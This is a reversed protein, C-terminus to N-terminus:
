TRSKVAESLDKMKTGFDQWDRSVDSRVVRRAAELVKENKQAKAESKEVMAKFGEIEKLAKQADKESKQGAKEVDKSLNIIKRDNDKLKAAQDSNERQLNSAKGQAATLKEQLKELQDNQKTQLKKITEEHKKHLKQATDAHAKQMNSVRKEFDETTKPTKARKLVAIEKELSTVSEAITANKTREENLKRTLKSRLATQEREHTNRLQIIFQLETVEDTKANLETTRSELKRQEIDLQIETQECQLRASEERMYSTKWLAHLEEIQADKASLDVAQAAVKAKETEFQSNLGEVLTKFSTALDLAQTMSPGNPAHNASIEPEYAHSDIQPYDPEELAQTKQKKFPPKVAQALELMRARVDKFDSQVLAEAAASIKDHNKGNVQARLSDAEETKQDLAQELAAVRGQPQFNDSLRTGTDIAANAHQMNAMIGQKTRQRKAQNPLQWPTRERESRCAHRDAAHLVDSAQDSPISPPCRKRGSHTRLPENDAFDRLLPLAYYIGPSQSSRILARSEMSGRAPPSRSRRQRNKRDM